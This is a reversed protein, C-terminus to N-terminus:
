RSRRRQGIAIMVPNANGTLRLAMAQRAWQRYRDTDSPGASSTAASALGQLALLVASSGVGQLAIARASLTM